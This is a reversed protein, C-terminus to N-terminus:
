YEERQWMRYSASSNEGAKEGWFVEESGALSSQTISKQPRM